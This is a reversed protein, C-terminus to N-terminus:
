GASQAAASVDADIMYFKVLFSVNHKDALDAIGPIEPVAADQTKAVHDQLEKATDEKCFPAFENFNTESSPRLCQFGRVHQGRRGFAAVGKAPLPQDRRRLKNSESGAMGLSVDNFCLCFLFLCELWLCRTGVSRHREQVEQSGM